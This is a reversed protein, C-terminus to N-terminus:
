SAAIAIQFHKAPVCTSKPVNEHTYHFENLEEVYVTNTYSEM